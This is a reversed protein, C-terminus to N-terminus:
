SGYEGEVRVDDPEGQPLETLRLQYEKAKPEHEHKAFAWMFPKTAWLIMHCAIRL